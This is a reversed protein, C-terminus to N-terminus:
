FEYMDLTLVVGLVFYTKMLNHNHKQKEIGNERDRGRRM